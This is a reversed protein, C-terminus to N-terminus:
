EPVGAGRGPLLSGDLGLWSDAAGDVASGLWRLEGAVCGAAARVTEGFALVAAGLAGGVPDIPVEAVMRDARDAAAQLVGALAHLEAPVVEISM